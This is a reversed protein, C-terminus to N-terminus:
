RAGHAILRVFVSRGPQQMTDVLQNLAIPDSYNRNFANRLGFQLDLNPLLRRTTITFDALYVPPVSLGGLAPRSSYYQMSGSADFKRGLPVAFRVKAVHDPSNELRGDKDPDHSRQIAYSAAAELWASPRGNIEIELGAARANGANQYQILGNGVREGELFDHLWYSYAAALLNMRQGIKREVDVEVTDASEPRANPNPAGSRGGDDFYLEFASPNRFGRGYLFKYTWGSPPQYILAARPSLFSHRYASFDFRVGLDLKWRNSLRREDQAFLGFSKDRRDINMIEVPAPSVDQSSQINRLDFKGEAGATLTGFHATDFQYTLGTGVWDGLFSQRNDEVASADLPYDFRDREYFADYYTRWRLTGGAVERTYAAEVYNRIDNITTGRDNFITPGWSIPQIEKRDAFAATINWKGWSLNSFFHYGKQGNMHVAQGYNTEPANFQPFFLPSEGSNNFVSGSLLVKANKGLQTTAMVQTKKEGFSGVDAILTPPGAEDPSKSIVNITAFIGNSGYLASSPGRIIEIRQVLSIDIPFDEGFFLMFDLVNDAMNHGNVMVLFRSAYDGPLNFGRVGVTTYTRNNSLYFGRASALAEALTRYGYKLIDQTTIITVSAPADELSQPHLAAGEVKIDLLQELTLSSLDQKLPSAPDQSWSPLALILALGCVMGCTRM